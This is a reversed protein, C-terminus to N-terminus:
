WECSINQATARGFDEWLEWGLITLLKGIILEITNTIM